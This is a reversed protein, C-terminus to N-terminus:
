DNAQLLVVQKTLSGLQLLSSDQEPLLVLYSQGSIVHMCAHVTLFPVRQLPGQGANLRKM